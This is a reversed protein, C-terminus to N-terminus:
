LSVCDKRKAYYKLDMVDEADGEEAEIYCKLDMPEEWSRNINTKNDGIEMNRVSNALTTSDNNDM